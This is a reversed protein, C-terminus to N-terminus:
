VLRLGRRRVSAAFPGLDGLDFGTFAVMDIEDLAKLEEFLTKNDWEGLETLRNDAIRYARAQAESLYDLCIVPAVKLGLLVAALLRGHGAILIGSADVLCPVTWGFESMSAAIRRVQEPSHARANAVYPKLRELPWSEVQRMAPEASTVVSFIRDRTRNIAALGGGRLDSGSLGQERSLKGRETLLATRCQGWWRMPSCRADQSCARRERLVWGVGGNYGALSAAVLDSETAWVGVRRRGQRMYVIQARIACSPDFPSIEACSPRTQPAIDRWTKPMFQTLGQAGVRSQAEPRCASERHIQAALWPRWAEVGAREVEVNFTTLLDACVIFADGAVDGGAASDAPAVPAAPATVARAYLVLVLGVLVTAIAQVKM